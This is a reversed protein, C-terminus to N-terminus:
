MSERRLGLGVVPVESSAVGTETDLLFADLGGHISPVLGILPVRLVEFDFAIRAEIDLATSSSSSAARSVLGSFYLTETSGLQTRYVSGDLKFRVALVDPIVAVQVRSRSSGRFGLTTDAPTAVAFSNIRIAEYREIQLAAGLAQTLVFRSSPYWRLGLMCGTRGTGTREQESAALSGTGANRLGVQNAGGGVFGRVELRAHAGVGAFGWGELEADFRRREVLGAGTLLYSSASARGSAGWEDSAYGLSLNGGVDQVSPSLRFSSIGGDVIWRDTWPPLRYGLALAAARVDKKDPSWALSFLGVLSPDVSRGALLEALALPSSDDKVRFKQVVSNWKPLQTPMASSATGSMVASTRTILYGLLEVRGATDLDSFRVLVVPRPPVARAVHAAAIQGLVGPLADEISMGGTQALQSFAAFARSYVLDEQSCNQTPSCAVLNTAAVLDAADHSLLAIAYAIPMRREPSATRLSTLAVDLLLSDRLSRADSLTSYMQCTRPALEAVHQVACAREVVYRLVRRDGESTAAPSANARRPLSALTLTMM